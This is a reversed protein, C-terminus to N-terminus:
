KVGGGAALQEIASPLLTGGLGGLAALLAPSTLISRREEEEPQLLAGLAGGGLAGLAGYGPTLGVGTEGLEYRAGLNRILKDVTDGGASPVRAAAQESPSLLYGLAAIPAVTKVTGLTGRGLARAGIGTARGAIFPLSSGEAAGVRRGLWNILRTGARRLAAGAGAGLGPINIAEKELGPCALYKGLEYPTM